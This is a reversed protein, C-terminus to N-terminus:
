LVGTISVGVAVAVAVLLESETVPGDESLGFVPVTTLVLGFVNWAGVVGAFTGGVWGADPGDGLGGTVVGAGGTRVGLGGAPSGLV